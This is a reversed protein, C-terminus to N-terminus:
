MEIQLNIYLRIFIIFFVVFSPIIYFRNAIFEGFDRGLPKNFLSIIFESIYSIFNTVSKCIQNLIM